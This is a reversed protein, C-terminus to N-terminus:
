LSFSMGQDTSLDVIGALTGTEDYQSRAVDVVSEGDHEPRFALGACLLAV